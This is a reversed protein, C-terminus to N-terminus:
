RCLECARFRLAQEAAIGWKVFDAMRSIYRELPFDFHLNRISDRHRRSSAPVRSNLGHVGPRVMARGTTTSPAVIKTDDAGACIRRMLADTGAARVRM